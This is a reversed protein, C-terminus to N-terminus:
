CVLRVFTHSQTEIDFMSVSKPRYEPIISYIVKSRTYTTIM